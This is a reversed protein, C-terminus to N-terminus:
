GASGGMALHLAECAKIAMERHFQNQGFGFCKVSFAGVDEDNKLEVRHNGFEVDMVKRLADEFGAKFRPPNKGAKLESHYNWPWFHFILDNYKVGFEAEYIGPSRVPQFDVPKLTQTANLEVEKKFVPLAEERAKDYSNAAEGTVPSIAATEQDRKTWSM